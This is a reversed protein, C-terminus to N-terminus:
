FDDSTEPVSIQGDSEPDEPMLWAILFFTLTAGLFAGIGIALIM